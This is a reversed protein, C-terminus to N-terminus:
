VEPKDPIEFDPRGKYLSHQIWLRVEREVEEAEERTPTRGEHIVANRLEFVKGPPTGFSKKPYLENVTELLRRTGTRNTLRRVLPEPTGAARLAAKAWRRTFVDLAGFMEIVAARTEGEKLHAQAYDMLDYHFDRDLRGVVIFGVGCTPCQRSYGGGFRKDAPLVPGEDGCKPCRLFRKM